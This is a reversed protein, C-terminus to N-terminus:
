WGEDEGEGMMESKRESRLGDDMGQHTMGTKDECAATTAVDFNWATFIKRSPATALAVPGYGTPRGISVPLRFVDLLLPPAAKKKSSDQMNTQDALAEM